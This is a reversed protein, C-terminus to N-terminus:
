FAGELKHLGCLIGGPCSKHFITGAEMALLAAPILATGNGFWGLTTNIKKGEAKPM